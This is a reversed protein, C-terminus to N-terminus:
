DERVQLVGRKERLWIEHSRREIKDAIGPLPHSGDGVKGLRTLSRQYQNKRTNRVRNRETQHRLAILPSLNCHMARVKVIQAVLDVELQTTRTTVDSGSLRELIWDALRQFYFLPLM